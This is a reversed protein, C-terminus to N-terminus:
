GIKRKISKYWSNFKRPKVQSMFHGEELQSQPVVMLVEEMFALYPENIHLADVEVGDVVESLLNLEEQTEILVLVGHKLHNVKENQMKVREKKIARLIGLIKKRSSKAHRRADLDVISEFFKIAKDLDYHRLPLTQKVMVGKRTTEITTMKDKGTLWKDIQQMTAHAEPKSKTVKKVDTKSFLEPKKKDTM